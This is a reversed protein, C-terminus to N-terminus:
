ADPTRLLETYLQAFRTASETPAFAVLRGSGDASAPVSAVANVAAALAIPDRPPVLAAHPADGAVDVLGGLDSAVVAAGCYRAEVAVLGLGEPEAAPLIVVRTRQYWAVLDQQPLAGLWRVRDAVGRAAAQARLAAADPGDGVVTLAGLAPDIRPLADILIHLGKQANLRGVFLLGDRTGDGPRFLTTDIPLQTVEPRRAGTLRQAEDALWSSAATIRASRAAVARFLRRAVAGRALRVDSGHLTVVLPRGARATFAAALGAPFWWHAHIVDVSTARAAVARRLARLLGILAIRARWSSAVQQAMTGTYALTEDADAAYRIREIAVGELLEREALGPAHPALISVEVGRARLAVALRLVFSGPADGASRPANHTVFLVRM